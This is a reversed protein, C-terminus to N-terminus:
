SNIQNNKNYDAEFKNVKELYYGGIKNITPCALANKIKIKIRSTTVPKFRIIRQYGITSGHAVTMWKGNEFAEVSFDDVRQGLPIYEQLKVCNLRKKQNMKIEISGSHVTDPTAWYSNYKGDLVNQAEYGYGRNINSTATAGDFLDTGFSKQLYDNFEVLRTSDVKNIRGARDPPVNLLLSAGVGESHFYIKLLQSLSKVKSDQSPHYFWGPRISVDAEAPMWYKGNKTGTKGQQTKVLGPVPKKAGKRPKPTYTAWCSDSAFGQEDGVWRVDPGADSFMVAQPQYKRVIKHIGKWDYYTSLDVKRKGNVGGYYGNGGNAGDFWVEFINGYNKLLERLQNDYFKNYGPKGYDARHRDWPSLYIGFKVHYKHCADAIAKVVNGKGNKWNSQAVTYNSYKSPWICFGDHHRATLIVGSFGTKALTGVIQDPSFNTPHFKDPNANGWGWEKGTFTNMNFHLFAHRGMKQWQLQRKSPTAGYPKPPPVKHHHSCSVFTASLFLLYLYKLQLHM